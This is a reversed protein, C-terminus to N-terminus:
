ETSILTKIGQKDHQSHSSTRGPLVKASLPTTDEKSLRFKHKSGGNHETPLYATTANPSAEQNRYEKTRPVSTYKNHALKLIKMDPDENYDKLDIFSQHHQGDPHEEFVNVPAMMTVGPTSAVMSAGLDDTVASNVFGPADSLFIIHQGSQDGNDQDMKETSLCSLLKKTDDIIIPQTMNGNLQGNASIRIAKEVGKHDKMYM